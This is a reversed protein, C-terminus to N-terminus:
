DQFWEQAQAPVAGLSAGRCGLHDKEAPFPYMEWDTDFCSDPHRTLGFQTWIVLYHLQLEQHHTWCKMRNLWRYAHMHALPLQWNGWSGATHAHTHTYTLSHVNVMFAIAILNVRLFCPSCLHRWTARTVKGMCASIQVCIHKNLTYSQYVLPKASKIPMKGSLGCQPNKSLRPSTHFWIFVWLTQQLHEWLPDFASVM